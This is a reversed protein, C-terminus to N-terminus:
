HRAILFKEKEWFIILLADDLFYNYVKEIEADKYDSLKIELKRIQGCMYGHRFELIRELLKFTKNEKM